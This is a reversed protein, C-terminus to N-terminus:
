PQEKKASPSKKTRTERKIITIKHVLKEGSKNRYRASILSNKKIDAIGAKRLGRYVIATEALKLTDLGKKTKLIIEYSLPSISVVHGKADMVFSRSEPDAKSPKAKVPLDLGPEPEQIGDQAFVAAIAALLMPMVLKM